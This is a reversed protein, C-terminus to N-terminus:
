ELGLLFFFLVTKYYSHILVVCRALAIQLPEVLNELNVTSVVLQLNTICWLTDFTNELDAM